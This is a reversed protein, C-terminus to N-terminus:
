KPFEGTWMLYQMWWTCWAGLIKEDDWPEIDIVDFELGCDHEGTWESFTYWSHIKVQFCQGPAIGNEIAWQQVSDLNFWSTLNEEYLFSQLWHPEHDMDAFFPPTDALEIALYDDEDSLRLWVAVPDTQTM